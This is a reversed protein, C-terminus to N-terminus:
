LKAALEPLDAAVVDVGDPPEPVAGGTGWEAPRPIFGTRLGCRGAHELDAPHAAVMLVRHPPVGFYDPVLRYVRPDPKYSNALESSLICDFPMGASKALRTLLGMGGNSLTVLIHRNRLATLGPVTDPWPALRHWGRVLEDREADGLWGLGHEAAVEDLMTRHLVDLPQYAVEGLLVRTLAPQYRSRWADAVAPWDAQRGARAGARAFEAAISSRWDVLTGFVDFAVIDIEM